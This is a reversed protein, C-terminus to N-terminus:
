GVDFVKATWWASADHIGRLHRNMFNARRTQSRKIAFRINAFNTRKFRRIKPTYEHLNRIKNVLVRDTAPHLVDTALNGRMRAVFRFHEERFAAFARRRLHVCPARIDYVCVVQLCEQLEEAGGKRTRAALHNEGDVSYVQSLVVEQRLSRGVPQLAHKTAM